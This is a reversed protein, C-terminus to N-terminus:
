VKLEYNESSLNYQIVKLTIGDIKTQLFTNAFTHSPSLFILIFLLFYKKM